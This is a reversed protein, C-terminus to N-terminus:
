AAPRHGRRSVIGGMEGFTKLAPPFGIFLGSGYVLPTALKDRCAPEDGEQGNRDETASAEALAGSGEQHGCGDRYSNESDQDDAVCPQLVPSPPDVGPGFDVSPMHLPDGTAPLGGSVQKERTPRMSADRRFRMELDRATAEWHCRTIPDPTM